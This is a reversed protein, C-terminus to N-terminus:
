LSSIVVSDCTPLCWSSGMKKTSDARRSSNVHEFSCSLIKDRISLTRVFLSQFNEFKSEIMSVLCHCVCPLSGYYTLTVKVTRVKIEDNSVLKGCIVCDNSDTCESIIFVLTGLFHSTGAYLCHRPSLSVESLLKVFPSIPTTFTNTAEFFKCTRQLRTV